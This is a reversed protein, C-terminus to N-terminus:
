SSALRGAILRNPWNEVVQEYADCLASADAQVPSYSVM